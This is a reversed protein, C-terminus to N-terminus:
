PCYKKGKKTGTICQWVVKSHKKGSHWNRRSLNSGCFGCRLMSSFAYQRSYRESKGSPDGRNSGRKLRIKQAKEFVEKSIIPEHHDKLYFQDEEGINDLRRKSIPDVTFTKGLLIDGTYKENKIIGRVGSDNWVSNGKKTKYGLNTM